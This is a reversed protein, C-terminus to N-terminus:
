RGRASRLWGKWTAAHTRKSTAPRQRCRPLLGVRRGGRETVVIRTDFTPILAERGFLRSLDIVPIVHGRVQVIGAVYDPTGPVPTAGQYPELQLVASAPLAYEAGAVVFVVYLASM